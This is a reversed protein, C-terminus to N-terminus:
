KIIKINYEKYSNVIDELTKPRYEMYPLMIGVNYMECPKDYLEIMQRKINEMMNYEFSTHVHGYLHYWNYYHNKFCPMPYHSLVISNDGISLEKYDCIEVFLNRLQLNRLVKYDHNGKILHKIGNLNKFIEITNTSNHWSIDGLIYVDDDIGINKNWNDIIYKDHDEVNNFPRNDFSLINKHGFHLDAIFYNM